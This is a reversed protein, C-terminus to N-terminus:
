NWAHRFPCGRCAWGRVPYGVGADIATLVGAAVRLFDLEDDGDRELDAVQVVPVKAKTVVQLRLEVDGM